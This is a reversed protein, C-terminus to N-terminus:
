WTNERKEPIKNWIPWSRFQTEAKVPKGLQISYTIFHAGCVTCVTSRQASQQAANLAKGSQYNNEKKLIMSVLLPFMKLTLFINRACSGKLLWNTSTCWQREYSQRRIVISNLNVISLGLMLHNNGFPKTMKLDNM